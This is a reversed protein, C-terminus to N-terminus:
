RGVLPRYQCMRPWISGNTAEIPGNSAEISGNSTATYGNSTETSGNSAQISGQSAEISGNSADISGNSADISGNSAEISGYSAEISGNSANISGNSDRESEYLIRETWRLGLNLCTTFPLVTSSRISWTSHLNGKKSVIPGQQGVQTGQMVIMVSRSKGALLCIYYKSLDRGMKPTAQMALPRSTDMNTFQGVISGQM